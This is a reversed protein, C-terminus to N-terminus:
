VEDTKTWDGGYNTHFGSGARIETMWVSRQEGANYSYDRGAVPRVDTGLSRDHQKMFLPTTSNLDQVHM